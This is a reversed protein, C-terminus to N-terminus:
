PCTVTSGQHTGAGTLGCAVVCEPGICNTITCGSAPCTVHCEFTGNCDVTLRASQSAEVHCEENPDCVVDCAQGPSCQVHCPLGGPSCAHDCSSTGPCVCSDSLCDDPGPGPGTDDGGNNVVCAAIWVLLFLSKM